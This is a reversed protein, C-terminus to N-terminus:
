FTINLVNKDWGPKCWVPHSVHARTRLCLPPMCHQEWLIHNQPFVYLYTTCAHLLQTPSLRHQLCNLPTTPSGWLDTLRAPPLAPTMKSNWNIYCNPRQHGPM